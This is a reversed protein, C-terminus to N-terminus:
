SLVKRANGEQFPVTSNNMGSTKWLLKSGLWGYTVRNLNDTDFDTSFLVDRTKSAAALFDDQYFLGQFYNFPVAVNWVAQLARSFVRDFLFKMFCQMFNVAAPVAAQIKRGLLHPLQVLALHQFNDSIFSFLPQDTPTQKWIM